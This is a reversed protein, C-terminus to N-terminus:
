EIFLFFFLPLYDKLENRLKKYAITIQSEITKVSINLEESIEKQKKGEIKSKIFIERCKEPLTQIAQAIRQEIDREDSFSHNFVDLSQLNARLTLFYEETIKDEAKQFLVKRRLHDVCKNKVSMFLFALLNSHSSFTDWREWLGTFVDHVINEADEEVLVYERAFRKLRSYHLVYVKEFSTNEDGRNM